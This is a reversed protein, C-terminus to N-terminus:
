QYQIIFLVGGRFQGVGRPTLDAPNLMLLPLAAELSLNSCDRGHGIM